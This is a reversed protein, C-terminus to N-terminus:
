SPDTTSTAIWRAAPTGSDCVTFEEWVVGEPLGGGGGGGTVPTGDGIRKAFVEFKGNTADITLAETGAGPMPLILQVQRSLDPPILFGTQAGEIAYKIEIAGLSIANWARFLRNYDDGRLVVLADPNLYGSRTNLPEPM